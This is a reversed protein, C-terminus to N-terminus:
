EIQEKSPRPPPPAYVPTVAWSKSNYWESLFTQRPVWKIIGVNNNDLIGARKEDLHVLMVMHAGGHVAVGCGRRTNCAWELFNVDRKGRTYAYRVGEKDFKAALSPAWEGNGYTKRWMTALDEHGQWRFLSIMTAHVCSWSGNSGKWNSQRFVEELNVTPLEREYEPYDRNPRNQIPLLGNFGDGFDLTIETDCVLMCMLFLACLLPKM